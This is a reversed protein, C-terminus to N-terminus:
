RQRRSVWRKPWEGIGPPLPTGDEHAAQVLENLNKMRPKPQVLHPAHELAWTNFALPDQVTAYWDVERGYRTDGYNRGDGPAFDENEMQEHVAYWAAAARAKLDDARKAWRAGAAELREAEDILERLTAM